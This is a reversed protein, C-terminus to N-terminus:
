RFKAIEGNKRGINEYEWYRWRGYAERALSKLFSGVSRAPMEQWYTPVVFMQVRGIEGGSIRKVQHPVSGCFLFADGPNLMVDVDVWEENSFVALGGDIYDVGKFSLPLVLHSQIHNAPDVHPAMEGNGPRYHTIACYIGKKDANVILGNFPSEGSLKSRVYHLILSIDRTLKCWDPDWYFCFHRRYRGYFSKSFNKAGLYLAEESSVRVNKYIWYDRIESLCKSDVLESIVCFGSKRYTVSCRELVREDLNVLSLARESIEFTKTYFDLDSFM